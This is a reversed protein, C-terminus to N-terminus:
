TTVNRLLPQKELEVTRAKLLYAVIYLQASTNLSQYQELSSSYRFKFSTTQKVSGYSFKPLKWWDYIINLILTRIRLFLFKLFLWCFNIYGSRHENSNEMINFGSCGVGVPSRQVLYVWKTSGKRTKTPFTRSLSTSCFLVTAAVSKDNTM